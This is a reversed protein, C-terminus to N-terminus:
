PTQVRVEDIYVGGTDIDFHLVGGNYSSDAATIEGDVDGDVRIRIVEEGFEIEATHLELATENTYMSDGGVWGWGDTDLLAIQDRHIDLRYCEGVDADPDGFRCNLQQTESHDFAFDFQLTTGREFAPQGNWTLASWPVNTVASHSGSSAVDTSVDWAGTTYWNGFTGGDFNDIVTWESSETTGDAGGAFDWVRVWDIVMEETWPETLDAEGLRNVHNSFILGFPRAADNNLTDLLESPSDRTIVHEGNFYWEIRDEFWACGYTNFTETLDIGTGTAHGNHKHTEMDGPETSSTWHANTHLTQRERMPDDGYQFLEVIDIEPPWNMNAPHGWFGPLLGTRGPMKIRAEMYQGGEGAAPDIPIGESPHWSEGGTSSNIVGQYCGDPGTGESEIQLRCQNNEVVVHDSSVSADDDPIWDEHDIFGVGWRSTNFENWQEDLRLSWEGAPGDPNTPTVSDTQTETRWGKGQSNKSRKGVACGIGTLSLAGIASKLLLRRSSDNM